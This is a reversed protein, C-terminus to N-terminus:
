VVEQEDGYELENDLMCLCDELRLRCNPCWFCYDTDDMLNPCEEKGNQVKTEHSPTVSQDRGKTTPTM